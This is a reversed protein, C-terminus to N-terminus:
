WLLHCIYVQVIFDLNLARSLSAFATIFRLAPMLTDNAPLQLFSFGWM